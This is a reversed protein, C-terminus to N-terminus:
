NACLATLEAYKQDIADRYPAYDMPTRARLLETVEGIPALLPTLALNGLVGKLAHVADFAEDLNNSEISTKLKDFNKEAPITAVLRLYLAENGMCRGLGEETNAGFAKLKEITIM